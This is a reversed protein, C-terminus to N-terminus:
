LLLSAPDFLQTASETALGVAAPPFHLQSQMERRGYKM